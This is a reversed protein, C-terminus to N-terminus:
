NSLKWIKRSAIKESPSLCQLYLRGVPLSWLCPFHSRCRQQGPGAAKPLLGVVDPMRQIEGLPRAESTSNQLVANTVRKEDHVSTATSFSSGAVPSEQAAASDTNSCAIGALIGSVLVASVPFVQFRRDFASM